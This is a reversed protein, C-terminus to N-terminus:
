APQRSSIKKTIQRALSVLLKRYAERNDGNVESIYKSCSIELAFAPPDFSVKAARPYARRILRAYDMFSAEPNRYVRFTLSHKGLEIGEGTWWVNEPGYATIGFFNNYETSLTSQGWGSEIAAQALIVAPNLRFANGAALAPILFNSIFEDKKM